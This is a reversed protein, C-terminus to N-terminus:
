IKKNLGTLFMAIELKGHWNALNTILKMKTDVTLTQDLIQATRYSKTSNAVAVKKKAHHNCNEFLAISATFSTM